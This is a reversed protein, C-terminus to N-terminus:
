HRPEQNCPLGGSCKVVLRDLAMVAENLEPNVDAEFSANLVAPSSLEKITRLALIALLQRCINRSRSM